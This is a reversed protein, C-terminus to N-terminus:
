KQARKPPIPNGRSDVVKWIPADQNINKLKNQPDETKEPMATTTRFLFTSQPASVTQESNSGLREILLLMKFEDKHLEGILVDIPIVQGKRISLEPSSFLLPSASTGSGTGGSGFVSSRTFVTQNKSYLPSESLMRKEEKTVPNGTLITHLSDTGYDVREGTELSHLALGHDPPLPLGSTLSRNGYDIAIQRNFRVVMMDDCYGLFRFRGTFPAVVYGSYVAIWGADEVTDRCDFLEAGKDWSVADQCFYSLAPAAQRKFSQELDPFYTEGKANTSSAWSGLTFKKLIDFCSSKKGGSSLVSGRSSVQSSLLYLAGQLKDSINSNAQVAATGGTGTNTRNDTTATRITLTLMNDKTLHLVYVKNGAQYSKGISLAKSYVDPRSQSDNLGTSSVELTVKTSFGAANGALKYSGSPQNQKVRVTYNRAGSFAKMNQILYDCNSVAYDYKTGEVSSGDVHFSTDETRDTLDFVLDTKSGVISHDDSRGVPELMMGGVMVTGTLVANPEYGYLTGIGINLGNITGGDYHEILGNRVSLNECTGNKFIFVRGQRISSNKLLGYVLYQTVVRWLPMTEMGNDAANLDELVSGSQIVVNSNVGGRTQVRHLHTGQDLEMKSVPIQWLYQSRGGDKVSSLGVEPFSPDLIGDSNDSILSLNNLKLNGNQHRFVPGTKPGIITISHNEGDITINKAVTLPSSLHIDFDDSFIIKNNGDDLSRVYSFAERLSNVGDNANIVDKDTTVVLPGGPTLPLDITVDDNVEIVRSITQYYEKSITVTYKGPTKVTTGSYGSDVNVKWQTQGDPSTFDIEADPTTKIMIRYESKKTASPISSAQDSPTGSPTGSSDGTGTNSETETIATEGSSDSELPSAATGAPIVPSSTEATDSNPLPKAVPKKALFPFLCILICCALILATVAFVFGKHPIKLWLLSLHSLAINSSFTTNSQCDGAIVKQILKSSESPTHPPFTREMMALLETANQFRNKPDKAMMKMVIAATAPSVAPNLKRPDPVPSLFLKHLVEISNDGPYPQEGTLMEYFTAGLSYIDARADVGKANRAQEPPLYAPTGIMVNTKTLDTNQGDVKAIGLDALKVEGRRTFMINDPKIDRHVINHEEAAQLAAAVAEVIVVAQEESLRKSASLSNRLSGGDVYEMVIYPFGCDSDTEVDMVGVINPHRIESALKAERIFRELFKANSNDSDQSLMKLARFIGLTKHKALYVEGMGGKGLRKIITYKGIESGSAFIGISSSTSALLTDSAVMTRDIDDKKQTQEPEPLTVPLPPQTPDHSVIQTQEPPVFDLVVEEDSNFVVRILRYGIQIIDGNVIKLKGSVPKYNLFTGNMSDNDRLFLDGGEESLIAHFRSVGDAVVELNNSEDRGIMIKHDTFEVPFDEDKLGHCIIQM